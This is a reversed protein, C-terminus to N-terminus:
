DVEFYDDAYSRPGYGNTQSITPRSINFELNHITNNQSM